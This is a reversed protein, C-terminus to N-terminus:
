PNRQQRSVKAVEWENKLFSSTNDMVFFKKSLYKKM